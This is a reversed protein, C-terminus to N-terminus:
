EVESQSYALSIIDNRMRARRGMNDLSWMFSILFVASMYGLSPVDVSVISMLVYMGFCLTAPFYFDKLDFGPFALAYDGRDALMEITYETCRMVAGFEMKKIKLHTKVTGDLQPDGFADVQFYNKKLEALLSFYRKQNLHLVKMIM